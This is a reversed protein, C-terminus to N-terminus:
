KKEGLWRYIYLTKRKVIREVSRQGRKMEAVLLMKTYLWAGGMSCLFFIPKDDDENKCKSKRSMNTQKAMGGVTIQTSGREWFLTIRKKNRKECKIFKSTRVASFM